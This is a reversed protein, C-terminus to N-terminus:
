GAFVHLACKDTKLIERKDIDLLAPNAIIQQKWKREFDSWIKTFAESQPSFRSIYFLEQTFFMKFQERMVFLDVKKEAAVRGQPNCDRFKKEFFASRESCELYPNDLHVPVDTWNCESSTAQAHSQISGIMVLFSTFISWFRHITISMKSRKTLRMIMQQAIIPGFVSM